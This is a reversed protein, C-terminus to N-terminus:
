ARLSGMAYSDITIAVTRGGGALDEPGIRVVHGTCRLHPAPAVGPRPLTLVFDVAAGGGPPPGDTLFLVGSHSVNVTLAQHWESDGQERFLLPAAIPFRTARRRAEMSVM